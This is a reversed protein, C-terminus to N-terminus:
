GHRKTGPGDGPRMNWIDVLAQAEIKSRIAPFAKRLDFLMKSPVANATLPSSHYDTLWEMIKELERKAQPM